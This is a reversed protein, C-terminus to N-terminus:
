YYIRDKIPNRRRKDKRELNEREFDVGRKQGFNDGSSTGRSSGAVEVNEVDVRCGIRRRESSM